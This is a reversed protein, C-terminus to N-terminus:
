KRSRAEDERDEGRSPAGPLASSKSTAPAGAYAAAAGHVYVLQGGAHGAALGLGAVAVTAAVATLMLAHSATPRRVILVLGVLVLGAGSAWVFQEAAEEHQHIASEPVIADVRDEEASGTRMSLLGSGFLLAQLGVVALWASARVRGTWLAWAFGIAVLPVVVALGLPLHVLAPHLPLPNM